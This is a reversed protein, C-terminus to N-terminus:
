RLSGFSWLRVLKAYIIGSIEKFTRYKTCQDLFTKGSKLLVELKTLGDSLQAVDKHMLTSRIETSRLSQIRSPKKVEKAKLDTTGICVFKYATTMIKMAILLFGDIFRIFDQFSYIDNVPTIKTIRIWQKIKFQITDM